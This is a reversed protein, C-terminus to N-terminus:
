LSVSGEQVDDIFLAILLRELPECEVDLSSMKVMTIAAMSKIAERDYVYTLDDHTKKGRMIGVLFKATQIKNYDPEEAGEESGKSGMPDNMHIPKLEVYAEDMLEKMDSWSIGNEEEDPEIAARFNVETRFLQKVFRAIGDVQSQFVTDRTQDMAIVAAASRFNEMDLSMQQLGALEYMETKFADAEASLQPDLPTPNIVAMMQDVPRASDVYLCEGSGNSISKMALDVDSNFVPVAGKYMRIMQQSKAKVKNLERQVPYLLDFLSTSTAKSFGTDWSFTIMQVKDFPYEKKPLTVSGITLCVIHELCDFFMKFDVSNKSGINGEVERLTDEDLGELYPKLSAVPFMFDRFLLHKIDNNNMQSEYMGAEYDCMKSWKKTWPDIFAHAYGVVAADHFSELMLRNLDEDRIRKKLTREVEDKYIIFSLSPVDALMFAEFTITGLRSTVQDVIQKLYNSSMGTGTDEREQDLTTFPQVNYSSRTWDTSKLSPFMKNYFACIKIYEINYKMEINSNLRNFDPRISDPISWKESSEGPYLTPHSFGTIKDEVYRIAM